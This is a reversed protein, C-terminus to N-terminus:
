GCQPWALPQPCVSGHTAVYKMEDAPITQLAILFNKGAVLQFGAIQASAPLGLSSLPCKRKCADEFEPTAKEKKRGKKSLPEDMAVAVNPDYHIPRRRKGSDQQSAASNELGQADPQGRAGAM